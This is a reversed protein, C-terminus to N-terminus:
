WVYYLYVTCFKRVECPKIKKMKCCKGVWRQLKVWELVSKRATTNSKTRSKILIKDIDPIVWLESCIYNCDFCALQRALQLQWNRLNRDHFIVFGFRLVLVLIKRKTKCILLIISSIHLFRLRTCLTVYLPKDWRSFRLSGYPPNKPRRTRLWKLWYRCM